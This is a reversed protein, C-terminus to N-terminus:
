DGGFASGSVSVQNCTQFTTGPLMFSSTPFIFCSPFVDIFSLYILENGSRAHSICGSQSDEPTGM